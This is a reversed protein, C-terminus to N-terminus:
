VLLYKKVKQYDNERLSVSQLFSPEMQLNSDHIKTFNLLKENYFQFFSVVRLVHWFWQLDTKTMALAASRFLKKGRKILLLIVRWILGCQPKMWISFIAYILPNEPEWTILLNIFNLWLKKQKVQYSRPFRQADDEPYSIGKWLPPYGSVHLKLNRQQVVM